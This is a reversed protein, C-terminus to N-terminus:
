LKQVTTGNSNIRGWSKLCLPFFRPSSVLLCGKCLKKLVDREGFGVKKKAELPDQLIHPVTRLRQTKTIDLNFDPQLM